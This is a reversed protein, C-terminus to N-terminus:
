EARVMLKQTKAQGNMAYRVLVLGSVGSAFSIRTDAGWAELDVEIRRGTIDYVELSEPHGKLYCIGSTPNPYLVTADRELPLGTITSGDGKGFGPRVMITGHVNTNQIWTGNTNYFIKSGNDTNKDLGVPISVNSLQKWGIYFAGGVPVPRYFPYRTFTNKTKRDVVIIEEFIPAATNDTLITRVQLKLSQSTNDGFEPFYIDVYVLTDPNQSKMEFLFALFSGAQNLGAAYEATGDDYAYYSSLVYDANLSDSYRFNIPSYIAPDYDGTLSIPINDKTAMGYKLRIHISDALPDFDAVDPVKNLTVTLYQLGSLDSGPYEASDLKIETSSTAGAVRSTIQANTTYNIPQVHPDGGPVNFLKLNYLDVSPSSLNGPVDELFHKVPMSFYDKFLSTFATSVTRDPFYLDTASRGSNLYVYDLNWTDYPGSLRAYNSFRFQFNDHFFKPDSIQVIVQQFVDPEMTVNTELVYVDEWLGNQAKLSLILQDGPDPPEGRGQVQYFFSLFVTNQLSIDVLDMRIPQSTLQDAFGKALVDNVDYPKGLSDAGDFSVVNKSPPRIGLGNNLLVSNGYLWLSDRLLTDSSSFDDWFPLFTPDATHTAAAAKQKKRVTANSPLPYEVLQAIATASLALIGIILAAIRKVSRAPYM